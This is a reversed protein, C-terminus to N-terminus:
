VHTFILIYTYIDRRYKKGILKNVYKATRTNNQHQQQQHQQQQTSNMKNLIWKKKKTTAITTKTLNVTDRGKGRQRQLTGFINQKLFYLFFCFVNKLSKEEVQNEGNARKKLNEM